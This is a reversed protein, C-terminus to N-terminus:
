FFSEGARTDAERAQIKIEITQDPNVSKPTPQLIRVEPEHRISLV